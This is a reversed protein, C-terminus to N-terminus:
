KPNWDKMREVVRNDVIFEGSLLRNYWIKSYMKKQEIYAESAEEITAFIGVVFNGFVKDGAKAKFKGSKTKYVGTPLDERPRDFKKSFANLDKPVFVCTDESYLKNGDILIDKDLHYDKQLYGAQSQCWEAFYQFDKFNESMSCQKYTPKVAQFHGDPKCRQAMDSWLRGATTFGTSDGLKFCKVWKGDRSKFDPFINSM